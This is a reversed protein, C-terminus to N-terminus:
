NFTLDMNDLIYNKTTDLLLINPILQFLYSVGNYLDRITEYPQVVIIQQVARYTVQMVTM